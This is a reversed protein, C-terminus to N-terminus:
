ECEEIEIIEVVQGENTDLPLIFQRGKYELLGIDEVSKELRGSAFQFAKEWSVAQYTPVSSVRESSLSSLLYCHLM